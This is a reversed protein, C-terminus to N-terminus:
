EKQEVKELHVLYLPNKPDKKLETIVMVAITEHRRKVKWYCTRSGHWVMIIDGKASLAEQIIRTQRLVGDNISPNDTRFITVYKDVDADDQACLNLSLILVILLHLIYM